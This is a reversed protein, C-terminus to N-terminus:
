TLYSQCESYFPSRQKDMWEHMYVPICVWTHMCECRSSYWNTDMSMDGERTFEKGDMGNGGMGNGGM